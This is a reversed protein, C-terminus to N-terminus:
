GKLVVKQVYPSTTAALLSGYSPFFGIEDGLRVQNVAEEVDLVLHDSSGGLVIIGPDEPTIGDVVVDQRGINCIARKRIGRDIFEITSGFADQGRPGIPVSPKREVEVVEAVIRITDQRTGPWPSRDLVNRGLTIAEGIRFHNIEPPMEGSALLPLNASNGGSILSLDLGTARQCAARIDVLMQMNERTPIVGGYCALNAGLGVIEIRPFKMAERVVSVVRDPWVGERLDGVDVMVIVKHTRKLLQAALSLLEITEVSSNLSYDACRVVDAVRSPAPTRLLLVPLELGTNAISQLNLIRSDAIMDAGARELAHLISPHASMVKTVCAVQAGHARCLEIVARANTEIRDTYIELRPTRIFM